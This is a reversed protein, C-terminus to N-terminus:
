CLVEGRQALITREDAGLGALMRAVSPGGHPRLEPALAALPALVFDRRALEPHPLRLGPADLELVGGADDVWVLVDLDLTRAEWRARRVRGHRLELAQLGALLELPACDCRLEAAANLYAGSAPGLPRTEFVPSCRVLTAGAVAGGRLAEVAGRLTALREGLNSGLGVYVSATM